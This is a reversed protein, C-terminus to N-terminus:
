RGGRLTRDNFAPMANIIDEGRMGGRVQNWRELMEGGYRVVLKLDPDTALSSLHIVMGYTRSLLTHKIYAVGQGPPIQVWWPHGPYHDLLKQLIRMALATDAAKSAQGDTHDNYSVQAPLASHRPARNIKPM